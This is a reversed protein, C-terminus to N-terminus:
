KLAQGAVGALASVASGCNDPQGITGINQCAQAELLAVNMISNAKASVLALGSITGSRITGINQSAQAQLLAVNMISNANASILALGSIKPTDQGIASTASMAIAAGAFLSLCTKKVGIM